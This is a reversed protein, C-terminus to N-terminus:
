VSDMFFTQTRINKTQSGPRPKDIHEFLIYVARPEGTIVNFDFGAIPFRKSAGTEKYIRNINEMNERIAECPSLPFKKQNGSIYWDYKLRNILIRDDCFPSLFTYLIKFVTTLSQSARQYGCSVWYAAFAELFAFPSDFLGQVYSLTNMFGRSNYLMDLMKEISKLIKLEDYSIHNTYLVEYPPEDNYVIGYQDADARLRSGKLMKLFGLQLMDPALAYVDNFSQAFRKYGEEPLGAILDLHVHINDLAKLKGLIKIVSESDTQRNIARLTEPNTSQIGIEFQFLGEPAHKLLTLADGNLMDASVEFHFNTYGNDNSILYEWIHLARKKDCNFTRDTFKVQTVYQKIFFDLDSFVRELPLFRVPKDNHSLCYGCSSSCGRSSEYYIIKNEPLSKDGYPFPIDSLNIKKRPPNTIIRGENDRYTIGSVEYLDTESLIESLTEEGEGEVIIDAPCEGFLQAADFSVEPGGLIIITGPKIKKIARVLSKVLGINWIYCSFGLIEPETGHIESLIFGFNDNVTFELTTIRLLAREECYRKLSYVAANSHIFKANVAVLVIKKL